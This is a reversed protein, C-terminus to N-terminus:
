HKRAALLYVFVWVPATLAMLLRAGNPLLAFLVILSVLSLSFLVGKHINNRKHYDLFILLLTSSSLLMWPAAFFFMGLAPYLDGGM